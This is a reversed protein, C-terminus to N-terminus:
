ATRERGVQHPIAAVPAPLRRPSGALFADLDTAPMPRAFHYGQALSCHMAQLAGAQEPTEVGEAITSLELIGSLDVIAQAFALEQAPRGSGAGGGSGGGTGGGSVNTFTRDIKLVDVPLHWLYALSSYGTGFDDIAIRVGYERLRSLRATVEEADALTATVLVTETIELVLARGPLGSRRMAGLVVEPFDPDRLQRGSVNVTVAIGYRDYWRRADACAQELVWAGITNILGSEEAAPIFHDPPIPMGGPPTWRLLAEVAWTTGTALRVVPQYHITFEGEAIARRLGAVLRTRELLRDRLGPHYATVRNRGAGKAAYLALDADGLADPGTMSPEAVVTGVSITLNLEGGTLHYPEGVVDLLRRATAGVQEPGTGPLLVAFEDDGLRALTAEPGVARGLRDAVAILLEDGVPHGHVDNVERFGDLDLLLLGTPRTGARDALERELRDALMTRNPLGTLPDHEVPRSM